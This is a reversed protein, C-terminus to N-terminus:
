FGRWSFDCFCCMLSSISWYHGPAGRLNGTVSFILQSLDKKWEPHQLRADDLLLPCINKSGILEMTSFFLSPASSGEASSFLLLWSGGLQTSCTDDDHAFVVPKEKLHGKQVPTPWFSWLSTVFVDRHLQDHTVESNKLKGNGHNQLVVDTSVSPSDTGDMSLHM